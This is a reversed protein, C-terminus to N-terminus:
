QGRNAPPVVAACARIRRNTASWFLCGQIEAKAPIVDLSRLRVLAQSMPKRMPLGGRSHLTVFLPAEGGQIDGSKLKDQLLVYQSCRLLRAKRM